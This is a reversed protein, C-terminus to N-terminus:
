SNERTFRNKIVDRLLKYGSMDYFVVAVLFLSVTDSLVNTILWYKAILFSIAFILLRSILKKYVTNLPLLFPKAITDFMISIVIGTLIVTQNIEFFM